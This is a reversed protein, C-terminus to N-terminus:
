QLSSCLKSTNVGHDDFNVFVMKGTVTKGRLEPYFFDAPLHLFYVGNEHSLMGATHLDVLDGNESWKSELWANELPRYSCIENGVSDFQCGLLEQTTLRIVQTNNPRIFLIIRLFLNKSDNGVKLLPIKTFRMVEYSLNQSECSGSKKMFVQDIWSVAAQAEFSNLLMLFVYLKFFLKM